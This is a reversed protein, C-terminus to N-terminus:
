VKVHLGPSEFWGGESLFVRGLEVGLGCGGWLIPSQGLFLFNSYSPQVHNCLVSVLKLIEPVFNKPTILGFNLKKAVVM